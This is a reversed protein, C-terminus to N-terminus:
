YVKPVACCYKVAFIHLVEPEAREILLFVLLSLVENPLIVQNLASFSSPVLMPLLRPLMGLTEEIHAFTSLLSSLLLGDSEPPLSTNEVFKLIEQKYYIFYLFM